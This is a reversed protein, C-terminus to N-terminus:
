MWWAVEALEDNKELIKQVQMIDINFSTKRTGASRGASSESPAASDLRPDRVIIRAKQCVLDAIYCVPVLSVSRTCSTFSHCLNHVLQQLQDPTSSLEDLLCIYHTPRATGVRGAHAQLFFDFAYPHTVVSDVVLGSPLNGSRDIDRENGFFRTNHRKACICMLLRPRYGPQLRECAKLVAGHEYTLAAAYQGESIGDRFILIRDPYDGNHKKFIKLHEEIMSSLDQIIEGRGEQLRIQASYTDCAANYTAITCAVTPVLENGAKIPPLGLDGGLLMTSGEVMGPLNSLPISHTLGGLKSQIKMVLNGTYADIGRPSRIKAAQMCQTPVPANLETFSIRKIEEYLWADRGPLVCCILQPACKGAMYAARGAEKLAALINGEQRPDRPAICEPTRNAVVVGHNRLTQCLYGIYRRMEDVGTYKDFSVVSWACLPKKGNRFFQNGRLNWGGDNPMASRGAGYMIRPPPLIRARIDVLNRNVQLGWQRIKEQKEYALESRWKEVAQKREPPRVASIKIMEATQEATLKTPPLSNWQALNVFELPIFAKKGYQVCPLRPRTVQKGHYQQYYDPISIKIDPGGDHSEINFTIQDAPQVTVSLITHLRSSARHNVTFKAGRLVKKVLAIEAPNLQSLERQQPGSYSGTGHPPGRPAGKQLIKAIIDLAPGDSLFASFGIDLNLLPLGSSSYRFSQMFGRCVIAGRSIAHAGAMTFFRNGTAGVQAYNKSPLDRMLVNTAMLGTLCEEEGSPAKQDTKCFDMVHELDIEAVLKVTVKWRRGEDDSSSEERRDPHQVVGDPTVAVSFTQYGCALPLKIPTFANKRGDYASSQFGEKWEGQQELCLQEWVARLLGKPKKANAGRSVVPEMDVDYHYIIKGRDMARVQFFNSKVMIPRGEKGYGPRVYYSTLALKRFSESVDSAQPGRSAAHSSSATPPRRVIASEVVSPPGRSLASRSPAESPAYRSREQASHSFVQPSSDDYNGRKSPAASRAPYESRDSREDYRPMLAQFPPQSTRPPLESSPYRNYNDQSFSAQVKAVNQKWPLSHKVINLFIPKVTNPFIPM